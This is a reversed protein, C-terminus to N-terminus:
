KPPGGAAPGAVALPLPPQARCPQAVAESLIGRLLRDSFTRITGDMYEILVNSFAVCAVEPGYRLPLWASAGMMPVSSAPLPGAVMRATKGGGHRQDVPRGNPGYPQVTFEVSRVQKLFASVWNVQPAAGADPGLTYTFGYVFLGGGAMRLRHTVSDERNSPWSYGWVSLTPLTDPLVVPLSSVQGWATGPGLGGFLGGVLALACLSIAGRFRRGGYGPLATPLFRAPALPM